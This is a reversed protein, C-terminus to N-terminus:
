GAALSGSVSGDRAVWLHPAGQEGLWAAGDDGRLLAITAQAGAVICLAAVVSASQASAVPWGNRADLLHSYRRGDHEFYREYDGSTALAGEHLAISAIVGDPRRPHAIGVRWPRGDAQPGLVRVDGGLNVLAAGHGRAQLVAAARDAAYEKGFGGFDLEMEPRTLMLRPCRWDVKDWGVLPLLADVSGPAPLRASRFDWARRLVGATPDFRGDSAQWCQEAFDLLGATEDDVEVPEHGASRNIAAVVSDDRYRSYKAEIRTVEAEAAALASAAETDSACWVLAECPSAMARFEHRHLKM